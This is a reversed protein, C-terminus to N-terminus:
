ESLRVEQQEGNIMQKGLIWCSFREVRNLQIDSGCVEVPECDRPQHNAATLPLDRQRTSSDLSTFLM